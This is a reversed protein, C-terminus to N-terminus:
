QGMHILWAVVAIFALAGAVILLVVRNIADGSAKRDTELGEPLRLTGTTVRLVGDPKPRARSADIRGAGNESDSM